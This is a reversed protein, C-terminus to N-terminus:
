KKYHKLDEILFALQEDSLKGKCYDEVKMDGVAELFTKYNIGNDFPNVFEVEKNEKVQKAM